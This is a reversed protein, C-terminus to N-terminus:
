EGKQIRKRQVRVTRGRDKRHKRVPVFGEAGATKEALAAYSEEVLEAYVATIMPHSHGLQRQVFLLNGGTRLYALYGYTHRLLQVRAKDALGAASLISVVRRYLGTREYARGRENLILPGHPDDAPIARDLMAPRVSRVYDRLTGACQRSIHVIRGDGEGGRVRITPQPGLMHAEGLRLTCFESCRLGSFLLGEIIVRNVVAPTERSAAHHRVFGLLQAVESEDLIDERALEWPAAPM